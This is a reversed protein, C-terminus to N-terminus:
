KVLVAKKIYDLNPYNEKLYTNGKFQIQGQDPGTGNPPGDGYDAYLSDVVEMGSIVEGFPSFGSSDLQANRDSYNIFFQVSRTNRGATAFTITGRRNSAKVPDDPFRANSWQAGIQPDGHLGFQTVFGKVTRFFAVDQFYGIKVLNYFRDAGRPAWDRHVQVVFDGKTTEFRVQFEDPATDTALSPDLLAPHPGSPKAPPKPKDAAKAPAPKPKDAKAPPTSRAATSAPPSDSKAPEPKAAPTEEPTESPQADGEPPEAEDGDQQSNQPEEAADSHPSDEPQAQPEEGGGGCAGMLLLALIALCLIGYRKM